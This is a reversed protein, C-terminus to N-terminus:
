GVRLIGLIFVFAVTSCVALILALVYRTVVSFPGGGALREFRILPALLGGALTTLALSIFFLYARSNASALEGARGTTGYWASYFAAAGIVKVFSFASFVILAFAIGSTWRWHGTFAASHKM